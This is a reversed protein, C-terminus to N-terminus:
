RKKQQYFDENEKELAVIKQNLDSILDLNKNITKQSNSYKEKIFENEDELVKILEIDKRSKLKNLEDQISDIDNEQSNIIIDKECIIEKLEDNEIKLKKKEEDKIIIDNKMENVIETFNDININKTNKELKKIKECISNYNDQLIKFNEEIIKIDNINIKENLIAKNKIKKARQAFNLAWITEEYNYKLQSITTIISTKANGGLSDKLIHTLKSDRYSPNKNNNIIQNIVISLNLLRKNTSGAEKIREGFTGTKDQRESGALDVIHFVSKKIKNESNSEIYITIIAHSRSSKQNMKTEATHRFQNGYIIYKIAQEPSNIILKNLNKIDM